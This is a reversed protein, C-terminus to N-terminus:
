NLLFSCKLNKHLSKFVKCFHNHVIENLVKNLSARGLMEGNTVTVVLSTTIGAEIQGASPGLLKSGHPTLGSPM